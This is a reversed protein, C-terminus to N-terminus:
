MQHTIVNLPAVAESKAPPQGSGPVLGSDQIHKYTRSVVQRWTNEGAAQLARQAMESRLAPNRALQQMAAALGGVVEAQSRDEVPIKFGCSPPLMAGPGGTDLCIVPLGQSLAEMIVTGGSDHLSPFLFATQERYMALAQKRPLWGTWEVAHAIGLRHAMQCLWKRDPGNGVVTLTADPCQRHMQALAQLALHIGKWYLLRGVYLFRPAPPNASPDQAIGDEEIAVDQTMVCKARHALPVYALTEKTKCLILAAQEYSRCLAPNFAAIRNAFTRATDVARGRFPYSGLLRPPTSEGGGLPGLVFPVGLRGMFSPQRFVAFTIHHILDFHTRLALRRAVQYAGRQWLSYYTSVGRGGKKWWRLWSPLDYGVLHIPLNPQLTLAPELSPLNNERTLIWVEHGLRAIELAWHWGMGPESGKGPECAYASLLIRM